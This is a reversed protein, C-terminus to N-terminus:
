CQGLWSITPPVNNTPLFRIGINWHKISLFGKVIQIHNTLIYLYLLWCFISITLSSLRYLFKLVLTAEVNIHVRTEVWSLKRQVVLTECDWFFTKRDFLLSFRMLWAKWQLLCGMSCSLPWRSVPPTLLLILPDKYSIDMIIYHFVLSSVFVSWYRSCISYISGEIQTTSAM